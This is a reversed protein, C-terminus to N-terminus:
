TLPKLTATKELHAHNSELLRRRFLLLGPTYSKLQDTKWAVTNIAGAINPKSQSPPKVLLM